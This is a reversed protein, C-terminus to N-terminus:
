LKGKFARDSHALTVKGLSIVCKVVHFIKLSQVIVLFLGDLETNVLM